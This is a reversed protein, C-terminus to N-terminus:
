RRWVALGPKQRVLVHPICGRRLDAQVNHLMGQERPLEYPNTLARFGVAKAQRPTLTKMSNKTRM